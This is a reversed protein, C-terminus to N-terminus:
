CFIIIGSVLNGQAQLAALAHCDSWSTHLALLSAFRASALANPCLFLKVTFASLAVLLAYRANALGEGAHQTSATRGEFDYWQKLAQAEPTEPNIQIDSRQVASM